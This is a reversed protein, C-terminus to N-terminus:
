LNPEVRFSRPSQGRRHIDWMTAYATEVHRRFRDSDFLPCHARNYELKRKVSHLLGPESILKRALAEYEQLTKTVLEPLGAAKLM